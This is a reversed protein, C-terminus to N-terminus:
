VVEEAMEHFRRGIATWSLEFEASHSAGESCAARLKEDCAMRIVEDAIACPTADRCVLGNVGNSVQEALTMNCLYSFIKM